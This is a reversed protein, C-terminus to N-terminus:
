VGIQAFVSYPVPKTPRISLKFDFEFTQEQSNGGSLRKTNVACFRSLRMFQDVPLLKLFDKLTNPRVTKKFNNGFAVYVKVLHDCSEVLVIDEARAYVYEDKKISLRFLNTKLQDKKEAVDVNVDSRRLLFLQYKEEIAHNPLSIVPPAPRANEAKWVVFNQRQNHSLNIVANDDNLFFDQHKEM